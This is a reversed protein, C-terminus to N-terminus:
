APPSLSVRIVRERTLVRDIEAFAEAIKGKKFPIHTLGKINSFEEVGEERVIIARPFGLKGQFLGIEHVM